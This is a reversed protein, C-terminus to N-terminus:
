TGTSTAGIVQLSQIIGSGQLQCLSELNTTGKSDVGHFLSFNIANSVKGGKKVSFGFKLLKSCRAPLYIPDESMNPPDLVMLDMPTTPHLRFKIDADTRNYIVINRKEANNVLVDGFSMFKAESSIKGASCSAFVHMNHGEITTGNADNIDVQMSFDYHKEIKSCFVLTIETKTFASLLGTPNIIKFLKSM